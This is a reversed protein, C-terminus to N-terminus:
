LFPTIGNALHANLICENCLAVLSVGLFLRRFEVVGGVWLSPCQERYWCRPSPEPALRDRGVHALCVGDVESHGVRVCLREIEVFVGGGYAMRPGKISSRTGESAPQVTEPDTPEWFIAAAMSMMMSYSEPVILILFSLGPSRFAAM